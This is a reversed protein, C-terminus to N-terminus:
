LITIGSVQFKVPIKPHHETLKLCEIVKGGPFSGGTILPMFAADEESGTRFSKLITV